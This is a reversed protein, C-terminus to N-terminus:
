TRYVPVADCRCGEHDGPAWYGAFAGFVSGALVPDTRSQFRTGDLLVHPEFPDSRYEDGYAWVMGETEPAYKALTPGFVLSATAATGDVVPMEMIEPGPRLKMALYAGGAIALAIRVVSVPVHMGAVSEGPDPSPDAGLGFLERDAVLMMGAELAAKAREVNGDVEEAPVKIGYVAEAQKYAQRVVREFAVLLMAVASAFLDAHRAQDDEGLKATVLELARDPGLLTPVEHTAVRQVAVPLQANVGAARAWNRLKGGTTKIASELALEAAEELRQRASQEIRLLRGALEDVPAAAAIVTPFASGKTSDVKKTTSPPGQDGRGTGQNEHSQPAVRMREMIALDEETPKATDPIGHASRWYALGVAGIRVGETAAAALDPPVVIASADVLVRLRKYKAEAVQRVRLEHHLVAFTWSDGMADAVPKLYRRYEDQTVQQGNWRNSEGLGKLMEPSADASEGIRMRAQEIGVHLQADIPRAFTLKNFSKVLREEISLFAPTVGRGGSAEKMAAKVYQGLMQELYAAFSQKGDDTQPAGDGLAGENGPGWGPATLDKPTAEAPVVWVDAPLNSKAAARQALTFYYLDRCAELTGKVWGRGEGPFRPHSRTMQRVLTTTPLDVVKVRTEQLRYGGGDKKALAGKAVFRFEEAVGKPDDEEVPRGREDVKYGILYGDGTVGWCESQAAIIPRRSGAADTYRNLADEAAAVADPDLGAAIAGTKPDRAPVDNGEADIYGVYFVCQALMGAAGGVLTGIEPLKEFYFWAEREDLQEAELLDQGWEAAVHDLVRASATIAAPERRAPLPAEALVLSKGAM